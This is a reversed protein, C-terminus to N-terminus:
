KFKYFPGNEIVRFGNFVMEKFIGQFFTLALEKFRSNLVTLLETTLTGSQRAHRQVNIRLAHGTVDIVRANIVIGLKLEFYILSKRLHIYVIVSHLFIM